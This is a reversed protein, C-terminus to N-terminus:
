WGWDPLIEVSGNTVVVDVRTTGPGAIGAFYGDSAHAAEFGLDAIRLEYEPDGWVQLDYDLGPPLTLTVDGDASIRITDGRGPLLAADIDGTAELDVSGQVDWAEIRDARLVQHGTVGSLRATGSRTELTVDVRAPGTVDVDTGAGWGGATGVAIIADGDRHAEFATTELRAAAEEEDSARGWARGRLELTDGPRSAYSLDGQDVDVVVRHLDAGPLDEAIPSEVTTCAVSLALASLAPLRLHPSM